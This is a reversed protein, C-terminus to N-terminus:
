DFISPDLEVTIPRHDSAVPEPVVAAKKVAKTWDAPSTKGSPDAVCIYDIRITPKDAPFTVEDNSLVTWDKFLDKIPEEKPEANFDGCVFVPKNREKMKSTVIPVTLARDEPTLSWHSCCFVYKEFEVMLLCRHEERGPLPYYDVKIPKEKSLIGIGYKGGQFDIAPGYSPVMGTHKALESLVDVGNSRKTKYDLEQIACVDPNESKVVNATREYDTKKDLGKGNCINYSMVKFAGGEDAACDRPSSFALLSLALLALSCARLSFLRKM